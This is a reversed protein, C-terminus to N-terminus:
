RLIMTRSSECPMVRNPITANAYRDYQFKQCWTQNATPTTADCAPSAQVTKYESSWQLRNLVDYSHYTVLPDAWEPAYLKQQMLNGNNTSNPGFLNEQRWKDAAGSATGLKLDVLQLRTNYLYSEWLSDGRQLRKTGGQPEYTVSSVYANANTAM